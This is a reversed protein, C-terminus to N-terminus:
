PLTSKSGRDNRLGFEDEQASSTCNAKLYASAGRSNFKWCKLM